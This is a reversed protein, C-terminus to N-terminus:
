SQAPVIDFPATLRTSGGSFPVTGHWMYSPFLVLLGPQPQVIKEICERESGLNLGSEGFKIWGEHTDGDRGIESPVDVYFASSIWGNSHVHNVHFGKSSLEVSWSGGFNFGDTKRSLLPHEDDNPLSEIYRSVFKRVQQKLAQVTELDTDFLNGHTQTGGRLSQDLPATNGGHLARLDMQLRSLFAPLSDFGDPAEIYGQMVFNEYDNLWRYRPNDLLRWCLSRYAWMEQNFPTEVAVQDLHTLASAYDGTQILLRATDMRVALDGSAANLAENLASLADSPRDKNALLRAHRRLLDPTRGVDKMAQQTADMAAEYNGSLELARVYAERLSASGHAKPICVEYSKAFVDTRGQEWYLKNLSDHAEVYDPKLAVATRYQEDAKDHKGLEVYTNALALRLEPIRPSQEIAQKFYDLADSHKGQLGLAVGLNHLAYLYAPHIALAAKYADIAQLLKGQDKLLLGLANHFRPEDPKSRIAQSLHHEAKGHDSQHHYIQGLSYQPDAFAPNLELAKKYCNKAEEPRDLDRLLNGLNNLVQPQKANSKLSRNFFSEAEAFQKQSKRIIGMLHLADSQDPVGSLVQGFAREAQSLNGARLAAAGLTLNQGIQERTLTM